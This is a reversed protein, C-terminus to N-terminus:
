SRDPRDLSSRCSISTRRTACPRSSPSSTSRPAGVCRSTAPSTTTRFCSWSRAPSSSTRSWRGTGLGRDPLDPRLAAPFLPGAAMARALPEAIPSQPIEEMYASAVCRSASVQSIPSGAADVVIEAESRAPKVPSVTSLAATPKVSSPRIASDREPGLSWLAVAGSRLQVMTVMCRGSYGPIPQRGPRPAARLPPHGASLDEIM